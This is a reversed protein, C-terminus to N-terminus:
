RKECWGMRAQKLRDPIEEVPPSRGSLRDGECVLNVQSLAHLTVLAVGPDISTRVGRNGANVGAHRTMSLNCCVAGFDPFRRCIRPSAFFNGPLPNIAEAVGGMQLEVVGRMETRFHSADTAMPVHPLLGGGLAQHVQGHAIADLAM